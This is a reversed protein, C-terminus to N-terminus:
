NKFAQNWQDIWTSAYNAFWDDYDPFYLGEPGEYDLMLPELEADAAFTEVLDTRAPLYGFEAMLPRMAAEGEALDIFAYALNPKTTNAVIDWTDILGAFEYKEGDLDLNLPDFRVPADKVILNICRADHLPSLWIDGSQLSQQVDATSTWFSAPDTENIKDLLAAPEDWPVGEHKAWTPLFAVNYYTDIDPLTVHGKLDPNYWDDISQTLTINAKELEETNVCTGLRMVKAAPGAGNPYMVDPLFENSETLKSRDFDSVIVEAKIAKAQNPTDLMVVDAPAAGGKSSILQTLTKPAGSPIWEIKAGTLEEFAADMNMAANVDASSAMVVLPGEEYEVAGPESGADGDADGSDTASSAASTPSSDAADGDNSSGCATSVVGLAFVTAISLVKARKM